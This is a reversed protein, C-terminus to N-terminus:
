MLELPDYVCDGDHRSCGGGSCVSGHDIKCSSGHDTHCGCLRCRQGGAEDCDESHDDDAHLTVVHIPDLAVSSLLAVLGLARLSLLMRREM